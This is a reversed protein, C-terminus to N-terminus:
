NRHRMSRSLRRTARDSIMGAVQGLLEPVNETEILLSGASKAAEYQEPQWTSLIATAPRYDLAQAHALVRLGSEFSEMHLDSLILSYEQVDMKAIAEAASAATDVGYGGARLVTQLTLRSAPDDDVLLVRAMEIAVPTSLVPCKAAAM